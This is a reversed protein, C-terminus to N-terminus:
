STPGPRSCAPPRRAHRAGTARLRALTATGTTAEIRRLNSGISGESVIEVPGIQGLRRVHTGGCLELRCRARGTIM